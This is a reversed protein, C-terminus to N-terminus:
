KAALMEVHRTHSEGQENPLFQRGLTQPCTCRPGADNGFGCEHVAPSDLIRELQELSGLPFPLEGLPSRLRLRSVPM